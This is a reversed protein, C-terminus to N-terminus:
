HQTKILRTIAWVPPLRVCLCLHLCAQSIDPTFIKDDNYNLFIKQALQLLQRTLKDRDRCSVKNLNVQGKKWPVSAAPHDSTLDRKIEPRSINRIWRRASGGHKVQSINERIVRSYKIGLPAMSALKIVLNEIHQCSSTQCPTSAPPPGPPVNERWVEWMAIELTPFSSQNWQVGSGM